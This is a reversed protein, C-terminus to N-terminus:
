RHTCFLSSSLCYVHFTEGKKISFNVGDVAKLWSPKFSFVGEAKRRFHVCLDKVEILLDEQRTMENGM